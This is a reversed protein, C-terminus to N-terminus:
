FESCLRSSERVRVRGRDMSELTTLNNLALYIHQGTFITLVLAFVGSVFTVIIQNIEKASITLDTGSMLNITNSM